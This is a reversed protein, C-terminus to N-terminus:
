PCKGTTVTASSSSGYPQNRLVTATKTTVNAPLGILKAMPFLRPYTVTVEYLVADRASGFGTIGPDADWTGNGNADEYTENNNCTSNGDVDNYDEPQGVASFSSYSKRGFTVTAGKIVTRVTDTVRADITAQSTSAGEITSNRAAKQIAGQLVSAVYMNHALDFMGMITLLLVPAVMAFEVITAGSDDRVIAPLRIM